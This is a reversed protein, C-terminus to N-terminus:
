GQGRCGKFRHNAPKGTPEDHEGLEGSVEQRFMDILGVYMAFDEPSLRNASRMLNNFDQEVRSPQDLDVKVRWSGMEDNPLGTEHEFVRQIWEKGIRLSPLAAHM